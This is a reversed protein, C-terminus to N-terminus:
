CVLPVGYMDHPRRFSLFLDVLGIGSVQHGGPRPAQHTVLPTGGMPGLESAGVKRARGDSIQLSYGIGLGLQLSLCCRLSLPVAGQGTGENILRQAAAISLSPCPPRATSGRIV